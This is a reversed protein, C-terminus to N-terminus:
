KSGGLIKKLEEDKDDIMDFIKKGGGNPINQDAGADVLLKISALHEESKKEETYSMVAWFLPTSLFDICKKNIDAGVDILKKIVVSRGCWAAWHLATGGHCGPHHIDAGRSIYLLAVHDAHLSSAALLPTDKGVILENGDIHAGYALFIEAIKVAEEDTINKSFVLDCIRHLPHAKTTNSEDYPWGENALSPNESLAKNIGAYDKNLILHKM